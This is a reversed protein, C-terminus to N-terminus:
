FQRKKWGIYDNIGVSLPTETTFHLKNKTIENNFQFSPSSDEAKFVIQANTSSAIITALEINSTQKSSVGLHIGQSKSEVMAQLYRTADEGHIYNQKREGKGWVEIKKNKLAQNVYNPVITNEKMNPGFLSSIRLMGHNTTSAVIIEGWLKSIAYETKPQVPTQETIISKNNGYVSVSSVYLHYADPFHNLVRETFAVNGEYLSKNNVRLNGSSIAAHCMVVADLKENISTIDDAKYIPLSNPHIYNASKGVVGILTHEKTLLSATHSGLFGNIGTILIKM